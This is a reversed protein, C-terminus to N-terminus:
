RHTTATSRAMIAEAKLVVPRDVMKGDVQVAGSSNKAAALVKRAWIIEQETPRSLREVVEVQKPHICMKATCGFARAFAFDAETRALDDLNPTVGAIPPALEASRSAIAIKSYPYILGLEDGSLNLDAAYDLTGFAIRQVGEALAIQDINNIGRASEVLAVIVVAPSTAAITMKVQEAFETKPLMVQTLGVAKIMALDDAYWPSLADNIRVVLREPAVGATRVWEAIAQRAAAKDDPAVADELDLIVAGAGAALAKAFREPRNGPVFLYSVPLM